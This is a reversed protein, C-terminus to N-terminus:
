SDSIRQYVEFETSSSNYVLSFDDKQEESLPEKKPTLATQIYYDAEPIADTVQRNLSYVLGHDYPYIMADEPINEKAWAFDPAYREYGEAATKAKVIEGGAFVCLSIAVVALFMVAIKTQRLRASGYGWIIALAPIAPLFLRMFIQQEQFIYILNMVAFSGIWWGLLPVLVKPKKVFLGYVLPVTFMLTLLSWAILSYPQLPMFGLNSPLGLPVGYVDLYAKLLYGKDWVNFDWVRAVFEGMFQNLGLAAWITNLFPYVPNGLSLLNRLYWPIGVVFAIAFYLASKAYFRKDQYQKGIMYVLVPFMWWMSYKALCGIGTAVASWYFRKAALLYVSLVAFFAITADVHSITSYYMHIPIFSLFIVAYLIVRRDNVVRKLFLYFVVLTLSGYLPSVFDMAKTAIAESFISGLAYFVAATIHFVPPAWFAVRGLGEFLPLQNNEAIFRAAALHWTSDGSPYVLCAIVWRLLIAFAIVVVTLKTIRDLSRFKDIMGM